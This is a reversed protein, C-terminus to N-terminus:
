EGVELRGATLRDYVALYSRANAAWTREARVWAAGAAALERRRETDKLLAMLTSALSLDDGAQFLEAARSQEAIEALARVNSLVVTRGTSFAEFPKLPTVLQCVQAPRRPVVFIDIVSYYDVVADHPVQGTFVADALGLSAAQSMLREREPGDGVILLAVPTPSAERVAAYASVLTDIGEYESLSSVYGIVTAGQDIGLRALLGRNRSVVPFAEVDVANPIVTIRDRVVGGAEIRDAMVDALTVVHDADQRCRDEVERRRLYTDPLGYTAELRALDWGFRQAQRSLWTEEWFGRSEYVVPIALRRGVIEAARANVFDSAAHLVAPRVMLVIEMVGEAHGTLWEDLPVTGRAPGPIRHHPIGHVDEREYGSGGYRSTAQTAVHPDLGARQQALATYHTRVTYGSQKQPLSNGVLHLVRGPGPRFLPGPADVRSLPEPSLVRLEGEIFAVQRRDGDSGAVEACARAVELAKALYGRQVLGTRLKRLAREELMEFSGADVVFAHADLVDGRELLARVCRKVLEAPLRRRSARGTGVREYRSIALMVQSRELVALRTRQSKRRAKTRLEVQRQLDRVAARTRRIEFMAGALLAALMNVAVITLDWSRTAASGALSAVLAVGLGGFILGRRKSLAAKGGSLAAMM